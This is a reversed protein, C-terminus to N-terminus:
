RNKVERSNFRSRKAKFSWRFPNLKKIKAHRSANYFDDIDQSSFRSVLLKHIQEDTHKLDIVGHVCLENMVRFLTDTDDFRIADKVFVLFSSKDLRSSSGNRLLITVMDPDPGIHSVYTKRRYILASRLFGLTEKKSLQGLTRSIRYKVFCKLNWEVALSLLSELGWNGWPYHEQQTPHNAAHISITKDLEDLLEVCPKAERQEYEQASYFFDNIVDFIPGKNGLYGFKIPASKLEALSTKCLAIDAHFKTSTWKAFAIQMDKTLLFDRVTRHLFDVRYKFYEEFNPLSTVELLGKCRGNLRKSIEDNRSQLENTDLSQVKMHLAFNPDEEEIDLYWYNLLTQPRPASLTMQFARVTQARYIPDLSEVIHKFFADLDTPFGRLRRQLDVIRDYNELGHVLSRVVLYVWLFVGQAKDIIEKVLADANPDRIRLTQFGPRDELMNKVYIQIDQKNLDQLYLKGIRDDEFASEFVNWPRSAICLKVNSSRAIAKIVSILDQHDGEYEDLGDIFFCFRTSNISKSTLCKLADLLETRPWQFLESLILQPANGADSFSRQAEVLKWRSPFTPEISEPCQRLIEYLLSQLLGEQSRQMDTGNIWFFYSAIVLRRSDSWATLQSATEPNDVLYKMLTSKGSGPKGSIWFLPNSSQLWRMFKNSFMWQFTNPHAGAVKSHRFDMKSFRLSRLISLSIAVDNGTNANELLKSTAHPLDIGKRVSEEGKNRGFFRAIDDLNTNNKQEKEEKQFVLEGKLERLTELIESKINAISSTM